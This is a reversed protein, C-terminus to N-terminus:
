AFFCAFWEFFKIVVHNTTIMLGSRRVQLCNLYFAICQPADLRAVELLQQEEGSGGDSSSSLLGTLQAFWRIRTSSRAHHRASVILDM